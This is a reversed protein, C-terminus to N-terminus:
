VPFLHARSGATALLALTKPFSEFLKESVNTILAVSWLLMLCPFEQDECVNTLLNMFMNRGVIDDYQFDYHVPVLFNVLWPQASSVLARTIWSTSCVAGLPATIAISVAGLPATIAIASKTMM